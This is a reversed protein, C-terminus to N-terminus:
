IKTMKKKSWKQEKKKFMDFKKLIVNAFSLELADFFTGLILIIEIQM